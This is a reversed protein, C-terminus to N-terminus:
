VGDLIDLPMRIQTKYAINAASLSTSDHISNNIALKMMLVTHLWDM